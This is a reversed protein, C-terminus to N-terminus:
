GDPLSSVAAELASFSCAKLPNSTLFSLPMKRKALGGFVFHKGGLGYPRLGMASYRSTGLCPGRAARECM